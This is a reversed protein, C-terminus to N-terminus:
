EPYLELIRDLWQDITLAEMLMGEQISRQRIGQSIVLKETEPVAEWKSRHKRFYQAFHRETATRYEQNEQDVWERKCMTFFADWCLMVCYYNAKEFLGRKVFADILESNSDIMCNFTKLIYKKDRRCISNDRWKWLYFPMPCYRARYPEALERCLVQHYSDEHITLKKNYHIDNDILFQRNLYVGHCFTTNNDHNIYTLEGTKPDKTEERFCSILVDFGPRADKPNVGHMQLEQATAMKDMERFVINLGCVDSYMDDADSYSIYEASSHMMAADRTNSVGGKEPHVDEIAFPYRERWEDLPLETADPGDFAIIVGVQSLDVGQQVKLSDLMPEMIDPTEDWHPICIDLRRAM